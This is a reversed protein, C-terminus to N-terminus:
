HNIKMVLPSMEKLTALGWQDVLKCYSDSDHMQLGCPRDDHALSGQANGM